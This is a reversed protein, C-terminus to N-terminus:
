GTRSRLNSGSRSRSWHTPQSDDRVRVVVQVLHPSRDLLQGPESNLLHDVASVHHSLEDQGLEAPETHRQDAHEPVAVSVSICQQLPRTLVTKLPLIPRVPKGKAALTQDHSMLRQGRYRVAIVVQMAMGMPSDMLRAPRCDDIRTLCAAPQGTRRRQRDKIGIGARHLENLELILVQGVCAALRGSRNLGPKM